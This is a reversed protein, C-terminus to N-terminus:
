PPSSSASGRRRRCSRSGPRGVHAVLGDGFFTSVRGQTRDYFQSPIVVDLPRYDERLSGVASASLLWEVGIMKMAYINARYNIESPTLRHGHGHRALFAVRQGGLTGIVLPASPDGFPTTMTREERHTLDAMEYLGSGGIIGIRIPETM